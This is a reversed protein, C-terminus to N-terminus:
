IKCILPNAIKRAALYISVLLLVISLYGVEKGNYPLIGLFSSTASVGLIFSLVVSGCSACGLGLYGVFLSVIGLKSSKKIRRKITFIVFSVNISLLVLVVLLVIFNTQEFNGPFVMVSKLMLSIAELTEFIGSFLLQYYGWNQLLILSILSLLFISISLIIYGVHAYVKAFASKLVHGPKEKKVM